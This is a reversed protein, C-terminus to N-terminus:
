KKKCPLTTKQVSRGQGTFFARAWYFISKQQALDNQVPCPRKKQQALDNKVPCPQKKSRVVKGLLSIVKGLLFLHVKGLVFIVKGLLEM